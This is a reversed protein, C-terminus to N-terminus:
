VIVVSGFQIPYWGTHVDTKRYMYLVSGERRIDGEEGYTDATVESHRIHLVDHIEVKKKLFDGGILPEHENNAIWLRNSRLERLGAGNGVFVNSYDDSRDSTDILPPKAPFRLDIEILGKSELENIMDNRSLGQSNIGLHLCEKRLRESPVSHVSTAM